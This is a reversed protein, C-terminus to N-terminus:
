YDDRCYLTALVLRPFARLISQSSALLPGARLKGRVTPTTNDKSDYLPSRGFPYGDYSLGGTILVYPQFFSLYYQIPFLELVTTCPRIFALNALQAGHPSIVVDARHFELAQNKLSGEPNPLVKVEVLDGWVSRIQTATEEAFDWQRTTGVMGNSDVGTRGIFSFEYIPLLEHRVGVYDSGLLISQLSAADDQHIFYTPGTTELEFHQSPKNPNPRPFLSSVKKEDELRVRWQTVNANIPQNEKVAIGATEFLKLFDTIWM